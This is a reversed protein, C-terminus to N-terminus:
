PQASAHRATRRQSTAHIGKVGRAVPKDPGGVPITERREAPTALVLLVLSRAAARFFAAPM